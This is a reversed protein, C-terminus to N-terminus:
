FMVRFNLARTTAREALTKCSNEKSYKVKFEMVLEAMDGVLESHDNM